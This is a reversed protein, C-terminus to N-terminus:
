ALFILGTRLIIWYGFIWFSAEKLSVGTLRSTGVALVMSTWLYFVNFVGLGGWLTSQQHAAGVLLSLAPRTALDGSALVLLGTVVTGLVLIMQALGAIQLTKSFSVPVKLFLRGIGWLVSATWVTGVVASVCAIALSIPVWLAAMAENYTTSSLSGADILRHVGASIQEQNSSVPILFLSAVWVLLTPVVWVSARPPAALVEDFVETPYVFVNLLKAPLSTQDYTAATSHSM